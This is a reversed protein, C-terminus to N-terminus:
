LNHIHQQAFMNAVFQNGSVETFALNYKLEIQTGQFITEAVNWNAFNLKKYVEHL